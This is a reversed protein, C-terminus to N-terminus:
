ILFGLSPSLLRGTYDACVRGSGPPPDSFLHHASTVELPGCLRSGSAHLGLGPPCRHQPKWGWGRLWRHVLGQPAQKVTCSRLDQGQVDWGLLGLNPGLPRNKLCTEPHDQPKNLKATVSKTRCCCRLAPHPCEGPIVGHACWCVCQAMFQEYPTDRKDRGPLGATSLHPYRPESLVPSVALTM